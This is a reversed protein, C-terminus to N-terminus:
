AEAFAGSFIEKTRRANEANPHSRYDWENGRGLVDALARRLRQSKPHEVITVVTRRADRVMLYDSGLPLTSWPDAYSTM